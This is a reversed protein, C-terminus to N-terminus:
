PWSTVPDPFASGGPNWGMISTWARPNDDGAGGLEPEPELPAFPNITKLFRLPASLIRSSQIAGRSKSLFAGLKSRKPLVASEGVASEKGAAPLGLEHASTPGKAPVPRDSEPQPGGLVRFSLLLAGALVTRAM